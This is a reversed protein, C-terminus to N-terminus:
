LSTVQRFNPVMEKLCLNRRNKDLETQQEMVSTSIIDLYKECSVVLYDLAETFKTEFEETLQQYKPDEFMEQLEDTFM